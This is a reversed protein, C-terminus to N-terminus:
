LRNKRVKEAALMMKQWEFCHMCVSGDSDWRGPKNHSHGPYAGERDGDERQEARVLNIVRTTALALEFLLARQKEITVSTRGPALQFEHGCGDCIHKAVGAELGCEPCNKLRRARSYNKRKETM